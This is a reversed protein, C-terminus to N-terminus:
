PLHGVQTKGRHGFALQYTKDKHGEGDEAGRELKDRTM